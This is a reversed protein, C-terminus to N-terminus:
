GRLEPITTVPLKLYVAYIHSQLNHLSYIGFFPQPTGWQTQKSSRTATPTADTLSIMFSVILSILCLPKRRLSLLYIFSLSAIGIYHFDNNPSLCSGM